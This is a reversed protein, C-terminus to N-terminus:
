ALWESVDTLLKLKLTSPFVIVAVDTAVCVSQEHGVPVQVPLVIITPNDTFPTGVPKFPEVVADILRSFGSPAMTPVKTTLSCILLGPLMVTFPICTFTVSESVPILVSTTTADDCESMAHVIRGLKVKKLPRANPIPEVAVVVMPGLETATSTASVPGSGVDPPDIPGTTTAPAFIGPTAVDPVSVLEVEPPVDFTSLADSEDDFTCVSVAVTAPKVMVALTNVEWVCQSHESAKGVVLEVHVPPAVIVLTTIVAGLPPPLTKPVTVPAGLLVTWSRIPLVTTAVSIKLSCTGKDGVLVPLIVTM